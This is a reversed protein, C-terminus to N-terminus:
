LSCGRELEQGDPPSFSFHPYPYHNPQPPGLFGEPNEGKDTKLGPKEGGGAGSKMRLCLRHSTSVLQSSSPSSPAGARGGVGPLHATAEQEGLYGWSLDGELHVWSHPPTPGPGTATGERNKQGQDWGLGMWGQNQLCRCRRKTRLPGPTSTPSFPCRPPHSHSQGPPNPTCSARLHPLLAM